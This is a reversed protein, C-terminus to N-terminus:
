NGSRAATLYERIFSSYIDTGSADKEGRRSDLTDIVVTVNAQTYPRGRKRLAWQIAKPPYGASIVFANLKANEDFAQQMNPSLPPEGLVEQLTTLTIPKDREEVADMAQEIAEESKGFYMSLLLRNTAGGTIRLNHVDAFASDDGAARAAAADAEAKTFTYLDTEADDWNLDVFGLDLNVGAVSSEGTVYQVRLAHEVIVGHLDKSSAAKGTAEFVEIRMARIAAQFEKDRILKDRVKRKSKADFGVGNLVERLSWTPDGTRINDRANKADQLASELQLWEEFNVVRRINNTENPEEMLTIFQTLGPGGLQKSMSIFHATAEQSGSASGGDSVYAVHGALRSSTQAAKIERDGWKWMAIMMPNNRSVRALAVPDVGVLTNYELLHLSVALSAAADEEATVRSLATLHSSLERRMHDRGTVDDAYVTDIHKVMESLNGGSTSLLEQFDNQYKQDTQVALLSTQLTTAHMSGVLTGLLPNDEAGLDTGKGKEVAITLLRGALQTKGQAILKEIVANAIIAKNETVMRDIIERGQETDSTAGVTVLATGIHPDTVTLYADRMAKDIEILLMEPHGDVAAVAATTANALRVKGLQEDLVRQQDIEYQNVSNQFKNTAATISADMALLGAPSLQSKYSDRLTALRENYSAVLSIPNGSAGTAGSGIHKISEGGIMSKYGTKPHNTMEDTLRKEEADFTLLARKDKRIEYNKFEVAFNQVAAGARQINVADADSERSPTYQISPVSFKQFPTDATPAVQMNGLQEAGGPTPIKLVM